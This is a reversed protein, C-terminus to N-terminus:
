SLAVWNIVMEFGIHAWAAEDGVGPSASPRRVPENMPFASMVRAMPFGAGPSVDVGVARHDSCGYWVNEALIAAKRWDPKLTNVSFIAWCDVSFVSRRASLEPSPLSGSLLSLEVFGYQAWKSTDQPLSMGVIDSPINAFTRVLAQAVTDPTPRVVPATM